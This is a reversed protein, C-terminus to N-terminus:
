SVSSQVGARIRQEIITTSISPVRPLVTIAVGRELMWQGESSHVIDCESDKVYLDPLTGLTGWLAVPSTGSFVHVYAVCKLAELMKRRHAVPTIPRHPGKLASVSDDDNLFVTLTGLKAAQQLFTVHGAHLLDFCGNTWITRVATDKM